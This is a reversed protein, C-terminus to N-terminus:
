PRPDEVFGSTAIACGASEASRSQEAPDFFRGSGGGKRRTAVASRRGDRPHRRRSVQAHGKEKRAWRASAKAKKGLSRVSQRPRACAAGLLLAPPSSIVAVVVDRNGTGSRSRIRAISGEM